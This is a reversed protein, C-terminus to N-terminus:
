AARRSGARLRPAARGNAARRPSPTGISSCRRVRRRGVVSGRGSCSREVGCASLPLDWGTADGGTDSVERCLVALERRSGRDHRGKTKGEDDTSRRPSTIELQDHHWSPEGRDEGGDNAPQDAHARGRSARSPGSRRPPVLPWQWRGLSLQRVLHTMRDRARSCRCPPSRRYGSQAAAIPCLASARDARVAVRLAYM